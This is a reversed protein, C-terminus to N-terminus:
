QNSLTNAIISLPNLSDGDMPATSTQFAAFHHHHHHGAATATALDQINPLQGTSSATSFDSALQNLETAAATNGGGQATQAAKQLNTAIQQTVQKYQAPDSQQLQQLASLIQSFPSLQSNDSQGTSSAASAATSNTLGASRLSSSLATQFYSLSNIGSTM